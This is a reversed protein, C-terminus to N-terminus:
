FKLQLQRPRKRRPAIDEVPTDEGVAAARPEDDLKMACLLEAELALLGDAVVDERDDLYLRIVAWHEGGGRVFHAVGM